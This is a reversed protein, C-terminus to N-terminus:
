VTFAKSPAFLTDAADFVAVAEVCPLSVVGGVSGVPRVAVPELVVVISRFQVADVSLKATVPYLTNRSPPAVSIAVTVVVDNESM